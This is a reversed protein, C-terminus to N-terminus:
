GAATRRAGAAVVLLLLTVDRDPDERENGVKACSTWAPVTPMDRRSIIRADATTAAAEAAPIRPTLADGVRSM